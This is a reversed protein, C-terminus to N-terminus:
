RGVRMLCVTQSLSLSLLPSTHHDVCISVLNVEIIRWRLGGSPAKERWCSCLVTSAPHLDCSRHIMPLVSALCSPPKPELFVCVYWMGRALVGGFVRRFREVNGMKGM